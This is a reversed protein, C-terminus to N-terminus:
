VSTAESSSSSCVFQRQPPSAEERRRLTRGKIHDCKRKLHLAVDKGDDGNTAGGMERTKVAVDWSNLHRWWRSLERKEARRHPKQACRVASMRKGFAVLPQCASPAVTSKDEEWCCQFFTAKKAREEQRLRCSLIGDTGGSQSLGQVWSRAAREQQNLLGTSHKLSLGFCEHSLSTWLLRGKSELQKVCLYSRVIDVVMGKNKDWAGDRWQVSFPILSSM